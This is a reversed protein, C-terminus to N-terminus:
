PKKKATINQKLKTLRQQQKQIRRQIQTKQRPTSAVSLNKKSVDLRVTARKIRDKDTQAPKTGGFRPKSIKAKKPRTPKQLMPLPPTDENMRCSECIGEKIKRKQLIIGQIESFIDAIDKDLKKEEASMPATIDVNSYLKKKRAILADARKMLDNKVRDLDKVIDANSETSEWMRLDKRAGVSDEHSMDRLANYIDKRTANPNRAVAVGIKKKGLASASDYRRLIYNLNVDNDGVEDITKYEEPLLDKLRIM